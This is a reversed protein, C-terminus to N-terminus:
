NEFGVVQYDQDEVAKKLVENDVEHRLTLIAKGTEHSVEASEVGDVKVLADHVRKECHACMMGEIKMTKIMANGGQVKSEDSTKTESEQKMWNIIREGDLVEIWNKPRDGEERYINTLNLRLANMCVFFSSCAMAAAGIMPSMEWGNLSYYAGAALPICLANYFFAWFLNEKINVLVKRSLSIAAPVDGLSNKMLVVEAADIAADTGAGIATGIDAKTLAPADNIGDGVMMVRGKKQLLSVIDAKDEPLIGAAAENIGVRKAIADATRQNDGTLMVTYIGMNKLRRIAAASDPRIQDAVAIMGLVAGDKMFFLPTRGDNSLEEARRSLVAPIETLGSIYKMSGGVLTHGNVEATLGHGPLARFDVSDPASLQKEEAYACVAKALPHESKKELAYANQLLEEESIGEAPCLDTVGPTGSTITGTKDFAVIQVKGANELAEATKFLIGNKAGLGSGVMIAVPTALGLACPCSIVLVAVARQLAFNIDRGTVIWILFVVAAILIVAPVFVAAVKDAAKAAPAKTAATDSVMKIINSFTTNEGIRAAKCRLYGSTNITAASVSSGASKDVPISEGTLASEDVASEGEIVVGDAPISEGPRVVFLDGKRLEEIPVSVEEEVGDSRKRLIVASSPAMKMLSKLANTTQGKSISELLKGVTILTPIMAASDFYLNGAAKQYLEANGDTLARTMVLLYASSYLFSTGAGLAVLTDMNAGGHLLGRFGSVFFRRNIFLVALAILMDIIGTGLANGRLLPFTPLNWMMTGMAFYMLLLTLTVSWILYRKLKPTTKDKLAEEQAKLKAEYRRVESDGSSEEEEELMLSAGYGANEVARIVDSASATGDVSMTNTLLSVNVNEVGAVKRVAKEVHAQCAACSMGTVNYETM